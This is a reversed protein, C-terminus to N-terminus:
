NKGCCKKYKLGSGCPCPENRGIKNSKRELMKHCESITFGNLRWIRAKDLYPKLEKYISRIQKHELKNDTDQLIISLIEEDIEIENILKNLYDEFYEPINYEKCMSSIKDDIENHDKLIELIDDIIKYDTMTKEEVLKNFDNESITNLKIYSDVITLYKIEEIIKKLQSKRLNINHEDKLIELLKDIKIIGNILVYGIIYNKTIGEASFLNDQPVDEYTNDKSLEKNSYGNLKWIPYNNYIDMAITDINDRDVITIDMQERIYILQIYGNIDYGIQVFDIITNTIDNIKQKDKIYKSVIRELQKQYNAEKFSKDINYMEEITFVKYKQKKKFNNINQDKNLIKAIDDFYIINEEIIYEQEKIYDIIQNHTLNINSQKLLEKLKDIELVGNVKIYFNIAYIQDKSM